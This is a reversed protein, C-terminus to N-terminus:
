KAATLVKGVSKVYTFRDGHGVYTVIPVTKKGDPRDFVEMWKIALDAIHSDPNPYDRPQGLKDAYLYTVGYGYEEFARQLVREDTAM